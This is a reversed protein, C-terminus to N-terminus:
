LKRGAGIASFYQNIVSQLSAVSEDNKTLPITVNLADMFEDKAKVVSLSDGVKKITFGKVKLGGSLKSIASNSKTADGSFIDEVLMNMKEADKEAQTPEKSKDKRPPAYRQFEDATPKYSRSVLEMLAFDAPNFEDKPKPTRGEEKMYMSYLDYRNKFDGLNDKPAQKFANFGNIIGTSEAPSRNVLDLSATELEFFNPIKQKYTQVVNNKSDKVVKNKETYQIKPIVSEYIANPSLYSSSVISTKSPLDVSPVYKGDLIENYATQLQNIINQDVIFKKSQLSIAEGLNSKVEKLAGVNMQLNKKSKEINDQIANYEPSGVKGGKAVWDQLERNMRIIGDFQNTFKIKEGTTLDTGFRELDAQNQRYIQNAVSLRQNETERIRRQREEEQAIINMGQQAGAMFSQAAKGYDVFGTPIIELRRSM